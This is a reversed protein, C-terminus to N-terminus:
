RLIILIVPKSVSVGKNNIATIVMYYTGNALNKFYRSGIEITNGGVAYNGVQTIQKILRYGGTYIRVKIVKSAQTLEFGIKINEIRPNYPNPYLVVNDIAPQQNSITLTMTPTSTNTPQLTETWTM